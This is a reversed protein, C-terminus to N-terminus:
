STVECANLFAELDSKRYRIRGGIKLYTPGVGKCRWHALSDTSYSLYHAAQATNMLPDDTDRTTM